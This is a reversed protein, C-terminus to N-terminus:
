DEDTEPVDLIHKATLRHRIENQLGFVDVLGQPLLQIVEVGIAVKSRALSAHRIADLALNAVAEQLPNPTFLEDLLRRVVVLRQAAASGDVPYPM